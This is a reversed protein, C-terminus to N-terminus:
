DNITASLEPTIAVTSNKMAVSRTRSSWPFNAATSAVCDVSTNNTIMPSISKSLMGSGSEIANIPIAIM